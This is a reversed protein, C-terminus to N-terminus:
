FEDSCTLGEDNNLNNVIKIRVTKFLKKKCMRPSICKLNLSFKFLSFYDSYLNLKFM